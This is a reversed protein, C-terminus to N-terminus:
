NNFYMFNYRKSGMGLVPLWVQILKEDKVSISETDMKKEAIFWRVLEENEADNTMVNLWDVDSKKIRGEFIEIQVSSSNKLLFTLIAIKM